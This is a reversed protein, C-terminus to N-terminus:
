TSGLSRCNEALVPHMRAKITELLWDCKPRLPRLDFVGGHRYAYVEEYLPCYVQMFADEARCDEETYHGAGHIYYTYNNV